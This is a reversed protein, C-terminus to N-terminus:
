RERFHMLTAAVLGQVSSPKAIAVVNLGHDEATAATPSGIAIVPPSTLDYQRCTSAWGSAASSAALLVIDASAGDTAM